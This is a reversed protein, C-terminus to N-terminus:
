FIFNWHPKRINDLYSFIRKNKICVCLYDSHIGINIHYTYTVDVFWDFKRCNSIVSCCFSSRYSKNSVDLLSFEKLKIEELIEQFSYSSKRKFIPIRDVIEYKLFAVRFLKYLRFVAVLQIKYIFLFFLYVM